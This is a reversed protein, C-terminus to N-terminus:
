LRLYNSGYQNTRAFQKDSAVVTLCSGIFYWALTTAITRILSASDPFQLMKGGQHVLSTPECRTSVDATTAM